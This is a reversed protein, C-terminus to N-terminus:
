FERTLYVDLVSQGSNDSDHEHSEKGSCNSLLLRDLIAKDKM